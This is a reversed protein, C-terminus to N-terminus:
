TSRSPSACPAHRLSGKARGRGGAARHHQVADAAAVTRKKREVASVTGSTAYGRRRWSASRRTRSRSGTPPTRPASSPGGTELPRAGALVDRARVGRTRARAGRDARADADARSGGLPRQRLRRVQGHDPLAHARRGLRPRHRPAVRRGARPLRRGRHAGSFAREIEEKTIASFRARLIPATKNVQRVLAPRM